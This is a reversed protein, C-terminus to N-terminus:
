GKLLQKYRKVIISTVQHDIEEYDSDANEDHDEKLERSSKLAM